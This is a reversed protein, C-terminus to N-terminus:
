NEVAFEVRLKFDGVEKHGTPIVIEGAEGKTGLRNMAPTGPPIEITLQARLATETEKAEGLTVRLSEPTAQPAGLKIERRHPGRVFLQLIRKHGKKGDVTGLRVVGDPAGLISLDGVIAGRVAITVDPLDTRGTPLRITQHFEGLPLGPKVTVRATWASKVDKPLKDAPVPTLAVDFYDALSVELCGFEGLVLPEDDYCDIRAEVERSDLASLSGLTLEAPTVAMSRLVRGEIMLPIYSHDPDSTSLEVAQRFEEENKLLELGVVVDASEGPAVEIPTETKITLCIKCTATASKIVLPTDGQNTVKFTFTTKWGKKQAGFDVSKPTVEATGGQNQAERRERPERRDLANPSEFIGMKWASFAATGGVAVVFALALILWPKM